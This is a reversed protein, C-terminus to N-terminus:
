RSNDSSSPQRPAPVVGMLRQRPVAGFSVNARAMAVDQHPLEAIPVSTIEHRDEISSANHSATEPDIIMSVILSTAALLASCTPSTVVRDSIGDATDTLITVQWADPRPHEVHAVVALRVSPVQSGVLDRRLEDILASRGPCELPADWQLALQEM